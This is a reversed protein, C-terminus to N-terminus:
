YWFSANVLWGQGIQVNVGPGRRIHYQVSLDMVSAAAFKGHEPLWYRFKVGPGYNWSERQAPPVVGGLGANNVTNANQNSDFMGTIGYHPYIVLRESLKSLHFSRGYTGEGNYITRHNSGLYFTAAAYFQFTSWDHAVPKIDTGNDTSYGMRILSENTINKASSLQREAALMVGYDSFPKYRVGVGTFSSNGGVPVRRVGAGNVGTYDFLTAYSSLYVQALRGNNYYPQWYVDMGGAINNNRTRGGVPPAHQKSVNLLFGWTRHLEQIEREYGFIQDANFSKADAPSAENLALARAFLESSVANEGIRKAAYGADIYNVPNGHGAAFSQQFADVAERDQRANLLEYSKHMAEDTVRLPTNGPLARIVQLQRQAETHESDLEAFQDARIAATEALSKHGLMIQAQALRIQVAYNEAEVLSALADFVAQPKQQLVAVDALALRVQREPIADLAPTQLLAMKLLEVATDNQNLRRASYGADAYAMASTEGAQFAQQFVQLAQQDNGQLVYNYASDLLKIPAPIPENIVSPADAAIQLNTSKVFRQAFALEIPTAALKVAREATARADQIRNLMFQAQAIRIQVDYSEPKMVPMLIDLTQQANKIVIASDALSLRVSRRQKQDMPSRNLAVLFTAVAARHQKLKQLVYGKNAWFQADMDFRGALDDARLKAASWDEKRLLIDLSMMGLQKSDPRLALAQNIANEAEDIKGEALLRYAEGALRYPKGSIFKEEPRVVNAPNELYALVMLSSENVDELQAALPSQVVGICVIASALSRYFYAPKM